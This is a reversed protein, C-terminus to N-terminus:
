LRKPDFPTEPATGSAHKRLSERLQNVFAAQNSENAINHFENPDSRHNYLESGARGEDWETYRFDETRISRGMVPKGAGPRLIQTFAAHPWAHSPDDLLTRLSRGALHKPAALGCLDTLTPYLDILEVMRPSARGNGLANPTRVILPSRSSEDFLTRKQWIGGHEGLHYGHDSWFVVTTTQLLGLRQLADLLRGIQADVFTVSAFYARLAERCTESPLGYNPTLNNHAFAAAPIDDRDNAPCEPLKFRDLSYLDFYKKPAVFPTHPRFFGAAIFFPKDRHQELLRIAESAIMGDTQEEDTGDAALWSLAASVPKEPTPNIIKSEDLVDRGKPNIVIEWSPKDDLGNTGIAKPVDYHYIKGVRATFWGNNKFHQPLTVVDTVQDRFHRELDFVGCADPRLGTMLSARSPNCLPIQCYARDFRVGSASLRDLNPTQAIPHGACGLVSGMDDVAIFLVNTNEALCECQLFSMNLMLLLVMPCYRALNINM